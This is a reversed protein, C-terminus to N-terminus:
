IVCATTSADSTDRCTLQSIGLDIGKSLSETAYSTIWTQTDDHFSLDVARCGGVEKERRIICEVDATVLSAIWKNLAQAHLYDPRLGLHTSGQFRVCM